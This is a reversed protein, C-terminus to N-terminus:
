APRKTHTRMQTTDVVVIRAKRGAHKGAKM